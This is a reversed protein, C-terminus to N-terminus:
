VTARCYRWRMTKWTFVARYGVRNCSPSSALLRTQEEQSLLCMRENVTEVEAEKFGESAIVDDDTAIVWLEDEEPMTM